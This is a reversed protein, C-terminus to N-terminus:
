RQPARAPRGHDRSHDDLAQATVEWEVPDLDLLGLVAAECEVPGLRGGLADCALYLQWPSLGSRHFAVTLVGSPYGAAATPPPQRVRDPESASM